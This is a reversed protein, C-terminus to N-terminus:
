GAPATCSWVPVDAIHELCMVDRRPSDGFCVLWMEPLVDGSCDVIRQLRLYLSRLSVLWAVGRGTLTRLSMSAAGGAQAAADAALCARALVSLDSPKLPPLYDLMCAPRVGSVVAILDAVIRLHVKRLASHLRPSM